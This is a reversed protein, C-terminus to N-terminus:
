TDNQYPDNNRMLLLPRYFFHFLKNKVKRLQPFVSMTNPFLYCNEIPFPASIRGRSFPLFQGSINFVMVFVEVLITQIGM